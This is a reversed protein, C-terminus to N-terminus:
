RHARGFRQVLGGTRAACRMAGVADPPVERDLWFSLAPVGQGVLLDLGDQVTAGAQRARDAFAGRTGYNADFAAAEALVEDPVPPDVPTANVALGGPALADGLADEDLDVVEAGVERALAEARRRTRNALAVEAGADALAHAAARATGGAGLLLVRRGALRQDRDELARVLGLGDTMTGELRGEDTVRFTNAAGCAEAVETVEDCLDFLEAKHPATTNGGLARQAVLGEVTAGLREPPTDLLRYRADVGLRRLAAEHMPPSLSHGVPHGLLVLDERPETSPPAGPLRAQLDAPLQGPAAAEDPAAYALAMGLPGALGRLTADGLGMLAFPVGLRPAELAAEALRHAHEPTSAPAALKVVDAGERMAALRDLVEDAAPAEDAHESVVVRAGARRARGTLAKRFAADHEVDVLDAGADTAAALRRRRQDEGLEAEGGDGARRCAALVPADVRDVARAAADAPLGDLRVEVIDAARPASSPLDGLADPVLTGVVLSM